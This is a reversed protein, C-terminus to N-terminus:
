RGPRGPLSEPGPTLGIFSLRNGQAAARARFGSWPARRGTWLTEAIALLRPFAQWGVREPPCWESWLCGEGGLLLEPRALRVKTQAKREGERLPDWGHVHRLTCWEQSENLYVHSYPSHIVEHGAAAAKTVAKEGARWAQVIVGPPPGGELIEDWCIARKGRDSLFRIIRHVFWTQLEKEDLLGERRIRAQCKPCAKWRDKPCEDAGLHVYPAPFLRCVEGLVDELFEFVRDNGACYVDKFIGWSTAVRYPGGTCGLWPYSALAAQAHGPLEIEPVVMVGRAGAYDVVERVDAATYFGGYREAGRWAGVRTLRPYKAVALRWGQDETLHWHLRNMKYLALAAVVRKVTDVPMFHRGSDLLFGRWAYRPHDKIEVAPVSWTIPHWDLVPIVTPSEVQLPLLQRLTHVGHLLGALAPADLRAGQATVSLRYSEPGRGPGPFRGLRFTARGNRRVPVRWGTSTRLWGALLDAAPRALADTVVSTDPKLLLPRGVARLKTPVPLLDM